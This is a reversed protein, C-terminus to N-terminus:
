RFLEDQLQEQRKEELDMQRGEEIALWTKEDTTSEFLWRVSTSTMEKINLHFTETSDDAFIINSKIDMTGTSGRWFFSFDILMEKKTMRFKKINGTRWGRNWKVDKSSVSIPIQRIFIDMNNEKALNEWEIFKELVERFKVFEEVSLIIDYTTDTDRTMDTSLGDGYLFYSIINSEVVNAWISLEGGAGDSTIIHSEINENVNVALIAIDDNQNTKNSSKANCGLIFGCILIVALISGKKM